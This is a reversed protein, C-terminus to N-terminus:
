QPPIFNTAAEENSCRPEAIACSGSFWLGPVGNFLSARVPPVRGLFLSIALQAAEPHIYGDKLAEVTM